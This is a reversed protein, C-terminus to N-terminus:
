SSADADDGKWMGELFFGHPATRYLDMEDRFATASSMHKQPMHCIVEPMKRAVRPEDEHGTECSLM